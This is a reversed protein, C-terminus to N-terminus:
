GLEALDIKVQEAAAESVHKKFGGEYPEPLKARDVGNAMECYVGELEDAMWHCLEIYKELSDAIFDKRL